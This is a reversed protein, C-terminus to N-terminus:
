GQGPENLTPEVSALAVPLEVKKRKPKPYPKPAPEILGLRARLNENELKLLTNQERLLTVQANQEDIHTLQLWLLEELQARTYRM